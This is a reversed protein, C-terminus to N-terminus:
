YNMELAVLIDYLKDTHDNNPQFLTQQLLETLSVLAAARSYPSKDEEGNLLTSFAVPHNLVMLALKHPLLEPETLEEAEFADTLALILAKCAKQETRVLMLLPTDVPMSTNDVCIGFLSYAYGGCGNKAMELASTTMEVETLQTDLPIQTPGSSSARQRMHALMLAHKAMAISNLVQETPPRAMFTERDEIVPALYDVLEKERGLLKVVVLKQDNDM